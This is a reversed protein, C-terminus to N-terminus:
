MQSFFIDECYVSSLHVSLFNSEVSQAYAICIKGWESRTKIHWFILNM